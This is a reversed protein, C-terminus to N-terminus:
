KSLCVNTLEEIGNILHNFLYKRQYYNNKWWKKRREGHMHLMKIELTLMIEKEKKENKIIKKEKETLNRYYRQLRKLLKEKKAQYYNKQKVKM